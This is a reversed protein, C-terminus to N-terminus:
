AGSSNMKGWVDGGDDLGRFDTKLLLRKMATGEIVYTVPLGASVPYGALCTKLCLEVIIM